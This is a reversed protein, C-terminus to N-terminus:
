RHFMANEAAVKALLEARLDKAFSLHQPYLDNLEEPDNGIDYLEFKDQNNYAPFGKYYILKYSGKRLAFTAQRLPVYAPNYKADMMYVSQQLGEAGGFGPLIQGESWAPVAAGSLHALTPLVDTSSTPDNIDRRTKQGPASILLPVRVVAEYLLPTSHGEVGREFFEGHDATVLVYSNDLIGKAELFDLLRGFEHDVNAVYEDYNQRRGNMHQPLSHDGLVHDPKVKPRWGDAFQRDFEKSPRYPAHPAWDHLYALSPAQLGAVTAMM